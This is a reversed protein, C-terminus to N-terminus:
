SVQHSVRHSADQRHRRLFPQWHLDDARQFEGLWCDRQRVALPSHLTCDRLAMIVTSVIKENTVKQYLRVFIRIIKSKRIM